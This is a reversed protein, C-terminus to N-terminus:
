VWERMLLYYNFNILFLIINIKKHYMNFICIGTRYANVISRGHNWKIQLIHKLSKRPEYYFM